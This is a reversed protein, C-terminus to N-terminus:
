HIMEGKEKEQAQTEEKSEIIRCMALLRADDCGSSDIDLETEPINSSAGYKGLLEIAKKEERRVHNLDELMEYDKLVKEMIGEAREQLNEGQAQQGEMLKDEMFDKRELISNIKGPGMKM